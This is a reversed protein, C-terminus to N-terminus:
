ARIVRDISWAVAIRSDKLIEGLGPMFAIAMKVGADIVSQIAPNLEQQGWISAAVLPALLIKLLSRRHGEWHQELEVVEIKPEFGTILRLHETARSAFAQSSFMETKALMSAYSPSVPNMLSALGYDITLCPVLLAAVIRTILKSM